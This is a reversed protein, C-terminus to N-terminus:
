WICTVQPFPLLTVIVVFGGFLNNHTNYSKKWTCFSSEPVVTSYKSITLRNIRNTASSSLAQLTSTGHGSKMVYSKCPVQSNRSGPPLRGTVAGGAHRGLLDICFMQRVLFCHITSCLVFRVFLSPANQFRKAGCM